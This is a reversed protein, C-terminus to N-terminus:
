FQLTEIKCGPYYYSIIEEASRGLKAQFYAGWQCFGVGHGWGFGEFIVDADAMTLSFNTSRVLNAGLALRFDKAPIKIADEKSKISIDTIRGSRDRDLIAIEEIAGVKYGAQRLKDAMQLRSCVYFWRYHPAQKCFGCPVGKLPELDTNWLLGADETHGACTAHFYAPLIQNKYLIVKGKTQDVADNTRYRESTKGGYVQSFVDSTADFDKSKNQQALFLAFTRSVIAQAKIAEIPWYHSIEHYLIGRVYDELEIFNVAYLANRGRRLFEIRGRFKRGNLSVHGNPDAAQIFIKDKGFSKEGITIGGSYASVFSNLNKARFFCRKGSIDTVEYYGKINVNIRSADRMVAVRIYKQAFAPTFPGLVIVVGLIFYRIKQLIVM